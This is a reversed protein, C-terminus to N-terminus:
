LTFRNAGFSIIVKLFTFNALLNKQDRIKNKENIKPMVLRLKVAITFFPM